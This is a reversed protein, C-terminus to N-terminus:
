LYDFLSMRSLRAVSQQAAQLGTLQMNLRSLAEAYDTDRLQSVSKAVDERLISRTAAANDVASLRAGVV